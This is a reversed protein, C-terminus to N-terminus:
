RRTKNTEFHKKSLCRLYFKNKNDDVWFFVRETEGIKHELLDIDEPLNNYLMKYGGNNKVLDYRIDNKQFQKLTCLSGIKRFIKLSKKLQSLKYEELGCFKDLYYRYSIVLQEAEKDIKDEPIEAVTDPILVTKEIQPQPIKEQNM